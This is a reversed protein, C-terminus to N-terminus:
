RSGCHRSRIRDTQGAPGVICQAAIVRIESFALRACRTAQAIADRIRRGDDIRMRAIAFGTLADDISTSGGALSLGLLCNLPAGATRKPRAITFPMPAIRSHPRQLGAAQAMKRHNNAGAVYQGVLLYSNGCPHHRAMARARDVNTETASNTASATSAGDPFDHILLEILWLAVRGAINVGLRPDADLIPQATASDAASISRANEERPPPLALSNPGFV